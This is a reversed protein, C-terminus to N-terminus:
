WAGPSDDWATKAVSDAALIQRYTGGVEAILYDNEVFPGGPPGNGHDIMFAYQDKGILLPELIPAHSFSGYAAIAPQFVQLRWGSDIRVFRAMGLLGGTFRGMQIGDPDYGSHNFSMVKHENGSSDTYSFVNILRTAEGGPDPFLTVSDGDEGNLDPYTKPKCRNCIWSILQNKDKADSLNYFKGPFLRRLTRTANFPNPVVLTRRGLITDSVNRRRLDGPDGTQAHAAFWTFLFIFIVQLRKEM